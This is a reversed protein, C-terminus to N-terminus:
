AVSLFNLFRQVERRFDSLPYRQSFYQSGVTANNWHYITTLLGYLYRYDIQHHM